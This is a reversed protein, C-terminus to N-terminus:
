GHFFSGQVGSDVSRWGLSHVDNAVHGGTHLMSHILGDLM